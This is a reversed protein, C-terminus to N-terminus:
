QISLIKPHINSAMRPVPATPDLADFHVAYCPVDQVLWTRPASQKVEAQYKAKGHEDVFVIVNNESKYIASLEVFAHAKKDFGIQLSRITSVDWGRESPSQEEAKDEAFDFSFDGSM